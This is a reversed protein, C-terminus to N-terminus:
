STFLYKENPISIVFEFPVFTLKNKEPQHDKLNINITCGANNLFTRAAEMGVGRGSIQTLQSATSLGSVFIFEAVDQPTPTADPPILNQIVAKEHILHLPLGRGDDEIHVEAHDGFDVVEISIKGQETKGALIREGPLEIGHSIANRVIHMLASKLPEAINHSIGVGKNKLSLAPEIKELEKALSYISDVAGFALRELPLYNIKMLENYIDDLLPLSSQDKLKRTFGILNELIDGTVFVGRSTLLDSARGKRGLKRFSIQEYREIGKSVLELDSLLKEKNWPLDVHTTIEQYYQEAEHSLDTLYLLELTRANGMITHMNRFLTKIIEPNNDSDETLLKTGEVIFRKSGEIFQNFKGLSINLIQGIIALEEQQKKAEINLRNIETSDQMIVLLKDVIHNRTIPIWQIHIISEVGNIVKIIENTLMHSNFDFALKDEGIITTLAVEVQDIRNVGLDTDKFLLTTAKRNAIDSTGLLVELYSSYEHHITNGSVITFVGHMMNHLMNHIDATKESIIREQEKRVTIDTHYGSLRYPESGGEHKASIGRAEAWLYTNDKKRLRYQLCYSPIKGEMYETWVELMNGLDDPHILEILTKFSPTLEGVEYGLMTSSRDSLWFEGTELDWDWVGDEIGGLLFMFRELNKEKEQM